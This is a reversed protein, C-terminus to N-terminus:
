RPSEAGPEGPWAYVFEQMGNALLVGREYRFNGLATGIDEPSYRPAKIMEGSTIIQILNGDAAPVYRGPTRPMERKSYAVLMHLRCGPAARPSLADILLTLAQLSLYNPLDWCLILDLREDNPRPLFRDILSLDQEESSVLQEIGAIGGYFYLDAMEIRCPRSASLRDLMAQSVAGLDLVVQRREPDQPRSLIRDLLPAKFAGVTEVAKRARTALAAADGRM